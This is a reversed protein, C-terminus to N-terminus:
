QAVGGRLEKETFVKIEGELIQIVDIFGHMHQDAEVLALGDYLASEPRWQHHLQSEPAIINKYKRYMNAHKKRIRNREGRLGIRENELHKEYYKGGRRNIERNLAKREEPYEDGRKRRKANLEESHVKNWERARKWRRLYAEEGHRKIYEDKWTMKKALRKQANARHRERVRELEKQYAEEGYRKIFEDKKM